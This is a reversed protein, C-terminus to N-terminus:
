HGVIWNGGKEQSKEKCEDLWRQGRLWTAPYPIFKGNDKTWDESLKQKKVADIILNFLEDNPKLRNWVKFVDGKAKKRPYTEWFEEFKRTYIDSNSKLSNSKLSNSKTDSVVTDPLVTDSPVTDSLKLCPYSNIFYHNSKFVGKETLQKVTLYGKDKLESLYKTYTDKNVGLEATAISRSPFSEGDTNAFSCLYSYIAKAQISLNKDRMVARSILGYGTDHTLKDM